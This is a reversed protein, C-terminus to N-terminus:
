AAILSKRISLACRPVDGCFWWSAYKDQIKRQWQQMIEIQYIWKLWSNGKRWWAYVWIGTRGQHPWIYGYVFLLAFASKPTEESSQPLLYLILKCRQGSKIRPHTEHARVVMKFTGLGVLNLLMTTYGTAPCPPLLTQIERQWVKM